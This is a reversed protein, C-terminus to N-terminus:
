LTARLGLPEATLDPGPFTNGFHQAHLEAHDVVGGM